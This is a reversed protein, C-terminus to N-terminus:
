ARAIWRSVRHGSKKASLEITSREVNPTQRKANPRRLQSNLPM